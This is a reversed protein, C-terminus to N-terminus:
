EEEYKVFGSSSPGSPAPGPFPHPGGLYLFYFYKEEIRSTAPVEQGKFPVYVTKPLPVTSLHAIGGAFDQLLNGLCVKDILSKEVRLFGANESGHGYLQLKLRTQGTHILSQM